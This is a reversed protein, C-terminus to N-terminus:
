FKLLTYNLFDRYDCEENPVVKPKANKMWFADVTELNQLLDELGKIQHGAANMQERSIVVQQDPKSM